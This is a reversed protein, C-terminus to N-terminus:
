WRATGRRIDIHTFGPYRGIGGNHFDPVREALDAVAKPALTKHSVDAAIGVLHQSNPVGGVAANHKKCRYACNVHLPGGTLKRLEELQAALKVLNAQVAAPTVCGCRCALERRSFHPSYHTKTPYTM